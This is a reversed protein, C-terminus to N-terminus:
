GLRISQGATELRFNPGIGNVDGTAIVTGAAYHGAADAGQTKADWTNGVALFQLPPVGVQARVSGLIGNGKIVNNGPSASNGLDVNFGDVVVAGVPNGTLESSRLVLTAAEIATDNGRLKSGTVAIKATANTRADIGLGSNEITSNTVNVNKVVPDAVRIGAAWNRLTSGTVNFSVQQHDEIATGARAGTNEVISNKLQLTGDARIAPAPTCGAPNANSITAADVAAQSGFGTLLAGGALNLFRTGKVSLLVSANSADIGRQTTDCGPKGKIVGGQMTVSAGARMRIAPGELNVFIGGREGQNPDAVNSKYTLASHILDIGARNRSFDVGVLTPKGRDARLGIDFGAILLNKVTGDGDMMLGVEGASGVLTTRGRAPDGEGELTVGSPVRLKPEGYVNKFGENTDSYQGGAVHVTDGPHARDLGDAIKRLPKAATGDGGPAAQSDVFWTVPTAASASGASLATAALAAALAAGLAARAHKPLM